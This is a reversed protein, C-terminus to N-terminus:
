DSRIESSAGALFFFLISHIVWAGNLWTLWPFVVTQRLSHIFLCLLLVCFLFTSISSCFFFFLFSVFFFLFSFCNVQCVQFDHFILDLPVGPPSACVHCPLGVLGLAGPLCVFWHLLRYMQDKASVKGENPCVSVCPLVNTKFILRFPQSWKWMADQQLAVFDTRGIWFM